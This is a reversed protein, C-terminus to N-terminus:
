SVLDNEKGENGWYRGAATRRESVQVGNVRGDRPLRAVAEVRTDVRASGGMFRSAVFVEASGREGESGGTESEDESLESFQIRRGCLVIGEEVASHM